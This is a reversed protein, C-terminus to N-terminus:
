YPTTSSPTIPPQSPLVYGSTGVSIFPAKHQSTQRLRIVDPRTWGTPAPSNITAVSDDNCAIKIYTMASIPTARGLDDMANTHMTFDIWGDNVAAEQETMTPSPLPLVKMGTGVFRNVGNIAGAFTGLGPLDVYGTGPIAGGQDGYSPAFALARHQVSTYTRGIRYVRSATAATIAYAAEVTLGNFGGRVLDNVEFRSATLGLSNSYSNNTLTVRTGLICMPTPTVPASASPKRWVIDLVSGLTVSGSTYINNITIPRTASAVYSYNTEPSGIDSSPAPVIACINNATTTPTPTPNGNGTTGSGFNGSTTTVGSITTPQAICSTYASATFGTTPMSVFGASISQNSATTLVGLVALKFVTNKM